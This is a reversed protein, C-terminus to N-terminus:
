VARLEPRDRTQLVQAEAMIAIILEVHRSVSYHGTSGTRREEQQAEEELLHMVAQSPGLPCPRGLLKPLDRDSRYDMLGIRAARVLLPPRKLTRIQTLPDLM